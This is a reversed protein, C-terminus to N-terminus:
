HTLHNTIEYIPLIISLAVSGVILGMGIMLIPEISTSLQKIFEELEEEYMRSIHLFMATLSGTREGIALMDPVIPPFLSRFTALSTALPVGRLTEERCFIWSKKYTEFASSQSIQVLITPLTQGCDLLTGISRCCSSISYKQLIPGIIPIVLLTMQVRYRFQQKKKYAFIFICVTILSILGAWVGYHLSFEYLAKVARTLLPLKIDMSSFLPIIKPFIYMVLFLTMGVTALAIFAPYILAGLLKKKISSGKEMMEVAQRLSLALIGSSEGFSILSVLGPEFRAGSMVISKSFSIGKEVSALISGLIARRKKVKEMNLIISLTESLSIGSELLIASRHAFQLQYKKNM